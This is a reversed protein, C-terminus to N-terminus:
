LSQQLWCLRVWGSPVCGPASSDCLAQQVRAVRRAAMVQGGPPRAPRHLSSSHRGRPFAYASQCRCAAADSVSPLAPGAAAHLPQPSCDAPGASAAMAPVAEALVRRNGSCAPRHDASGTRRGLSDCVKSAAIVAVAERRRGMNRRRSMTWAGDRSGNCTTGRRAPRSNLWRRGVNWGPM